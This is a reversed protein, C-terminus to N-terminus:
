TTRDCNPRILNHDVDLANLFRERIVLWSVSLAVSVVFSELASVQVALSLKTAVIKMKLEERDTL